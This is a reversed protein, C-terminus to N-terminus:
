SNPHGKRILIVFHFIIQSLFGNCHNITRGSTENTKKKNSLSKENLMLQSPKPSSFAGRISDFSKGFNVYSTSDEAHDKM